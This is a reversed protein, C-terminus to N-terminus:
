DDRAAAVEAVTEIAIATLAATYDLDINKMTDHTDHYGTRAIDYNEMLLVVPIGVDSFIQGDTNYLASRPEWEARVEGALELHAFAPPPTRGDPMRAARGKGRREPARNRARAERNWRENARHTALALRAAGAGEGPAIQFVDRESDANHGIMDLIFAGVVRVDSVDRAAGAGDRLVLSREVLAQCLARAGLCDAPFEEGTLHVLWVDRELQGDRAMPLLVEAAALLATTASHNDDAGHAAARLRDGGREPEYVDEMYATDYHDGMVVAERRNRGPIRVVLNREREPGSQSRRWGASWSFDFDTQWRFLHELVEARDAMGHRLCLERYRAALEDGLRDLDRTAGLRLKALAAAPGGTKGANGAITDANDKERFPGEALHAISRWLGEEFARTATAEFTRAPGPDAEPGVLARVEAVLGEAATRETALAPLTGLWSELSETKAIRVARRAFSPPLPAGLLERLELLKRLNNTTTNRARGPDRPFLTAAARHAPRALRRPALLWADACPDSVSEASVYGELPADEFLAAEDGGPDLRAVLPLHWYLERLGARMAPYLFRYGHEGGARVLAAARDLETPTAEPGDLVLAYDARWIQANRAMPKGYLGLDDPDTSFLAVAIKDAADDEGIGHDRAVRQWRHTRVVAPVLRHRRPEGPTRREPDIWGSQPIRLAYSRESRPFLHLLAIQSARRLTRALERYRPHHFFVLSAPSPVLRLTRALYASRVREPLAAFPRLTVLTHVDALPVDDALGLPRAFAPLLDPDALVRVGALSAATVTGPAAFRVLALLRAEDAPGLSRWFPAEAGDHSAGFLTWRVTGKDDQTRSLALPLALVLPEDRFRDTRAAEALAEPWAPNDRLLARSLAEPSGRVLAALERAIRSALRPLGPVLEQAQEYESVDLWGDELAAPPASACPKCGVWPPPMRESYARIPFRGAGTFAGEAEAAIRSWADRTRHTM